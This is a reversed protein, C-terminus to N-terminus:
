RVVITEVAAEVTAEIEAKAAAEAAGGRAKYEALTRDVFADLEARVVGLRRKTKRNQGKTLGEKKKVKFHPSAGPSKPKSKGNKRRAM